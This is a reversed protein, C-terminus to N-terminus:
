QKYGHKDWTTVAGNGYKNVRISVGGKKDKGLVGVHGGHETIFLSTRINRDKDYVGVVGGHEAISLSAMGKANKGFVSVVGGHEDINLGAAGPLSAAGKAYKGAVGIHGGHEDIFLRVSGKGDKDVVTLKTCTIEGFVDKQATLPSISSFLMGVLMLLGGLATYTLKQRFIM